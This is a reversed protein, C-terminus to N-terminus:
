RVWERQALVSTCDQSYRKMLYFLTTLIEHKPGVILKGAAGRGFPYNAWQDAQAQKLATVDASVVAEHEPDNAVDVIAPSALRIGAGVAVSAAAIIPEVAEQSNGQPEPDEFGWADPVIQSPLSFQQHTEEVRDHAAKDLADKLRTM